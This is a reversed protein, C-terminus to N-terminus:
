GTGKSKNSPGTPAYLPFHKDSLTPHHRWRGERVYRAKKSKWVGTEIAMNKKSNKKAWKERRERM